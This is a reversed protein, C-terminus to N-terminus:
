AAFVAQQYCGPMKRKNVPISTIQHKQLCVACLVRSPVVESGDLPPEQQERRRMLVDSPMTWGMGEKRGLRHCERPLGDRHQTSRIAPIITEKAAVGGLGEDSVHFTRVLVEM